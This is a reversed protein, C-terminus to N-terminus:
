SFIRPMFELQGVLEPKDRHLSEAAPACINPCDAVLWRVKGCRRLIKKVYIACTPPM